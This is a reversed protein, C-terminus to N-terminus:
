LWKKKKFYLLLGGAIAAMIGLVAFYGWAWELEPMYKFNMGYIGAVFTLPIFITAMITLVQMVENMKHSVTSLYLDQLGSLVDRFSEVADVVQRIHDHVDAIFILNEERILPLDGKKLQGLIDRLPWVQRHFILLDRKVSHIDQLTRPQPDDLLDEELAEIRENFHELIVFYYDVIVDILAYALYDSGGHRIRGKGRHLREKVKDFAGVPTECCSVLYGSGLVLSVQESQIGSDADLYFRKLIIYLYDDYDEVKPRQGTHVIDEQVLPHINFQRGLAEIQSVDHIGNLNLWTVGDEARNRGATDVASEPSTERIGDPGYDLRSIDIPDTRPQGVHVLTGPSLGAKNSARKFFRM